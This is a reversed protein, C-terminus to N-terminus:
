DNYNWLLQISCVWGYQSCCAGDYVTSNPDCLLNNHAPGCQGDTSYKQNQRKIPARGVFSRSAHQINNENYKCSPTILM